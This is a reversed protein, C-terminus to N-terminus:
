DEKKAIGALKTEDDKIIESVNSATVEEEHKQFTKLNIEFREKM